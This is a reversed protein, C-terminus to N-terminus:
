SRFQHAVSGIEGFLDGLEANLGEGFVGFVEVAFMDTDALDEAGVDVFGVDEL